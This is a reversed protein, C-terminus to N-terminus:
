INNDGSEVEQVVVEVQVVVLQQHVVAVVVQTLQELEGGEKNPAGGSGFGGGGPANPTNSATGHVMMM